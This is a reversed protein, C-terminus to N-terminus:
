LQKVVVPSRLRVTQTGAVVTAQFTLKVGVSQAPWTLVGSHKGTFRIWTGSNAGTCQTMADVKWCGVVLTGLLIQLRAKAVAPKGARDKVVITYRWPMDVLPTTTSTTLAARVPVAASASAALTSAAIGIVLLRVASM